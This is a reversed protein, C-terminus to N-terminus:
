AGCWSYMYSLPPIARGNKVEASSLPSQDAESRPRKVGLSITRPIWEIPLQTPGLVLRFAKSFPFIEQGWQCYFGPQGAQLRNNNFLYLLYIYLIYIYLIIDLYMIRM